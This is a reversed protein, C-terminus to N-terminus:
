KKYVLLQDNTLYITPNMNSLENASAGMKRSVDLLTDDMGTVYFTVGDRPVFIVDGPYITDENNLGNLRLLDSPLVGYRRAISYITDGKNITYRKFYMNENSRNPIIIYDMPKVMMGKSFGNINLLEDLSIGVKNAIDELSEGELVQYISYM